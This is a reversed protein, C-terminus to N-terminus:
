EAISETSKLEESLLAQAGATVIKEGSHFQDAVFSIGASLGEDPLRRREFKDPAVQLYVWLAGNHHVIAAAPVIVGKRSEGPQELFGLVAAGPSLHLDNKESLLLLGRGQTQADVSPAPGLVRAEM